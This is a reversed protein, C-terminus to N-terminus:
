IIAIFRCTDLGHIASSHSMVTIKRQAYNESGEHRYNSVYLYIYNFLCMNLCIIKLNSTWIVTGEHESSLWATGDLTKLTDNQQQSGSLDLVSNMSKM